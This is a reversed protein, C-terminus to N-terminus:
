RLLKNGIRIRHNLKPKYFQVCCAKVGIEVPIWIDGLRPTVSHLEKSTIQQEIKELPSPVQMKKNPYYDMVTWKSRKKNKDLDNSKHFTWCADSRNDLRELKLLEHTLVL